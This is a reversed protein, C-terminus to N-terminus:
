LGHWNLLSAFYAHIRNRRGLYPRDRLMLGVKKLLDEFESKPANELIHRAYENMRRKFFEKALDESLGSYTLTLKVIEELQELFDSKLWTKYEYNQSHLNFILIEPSEIIVSPYKVCIRPFYELDSSYAFRENFLGVSKVIQQHITVGSPARHPVLASWAGPELVRYRFSQDFKADLSSHGILAPENILSCARRITKIANINVLDDDHIICIWDRSAATLCKNWTKVMGQNSSNTILHVRPIASLYESTGDQSGDDVVLIEDEEHLQPLLSEVLAVVTKCRKYTPIAVTISIQKYM